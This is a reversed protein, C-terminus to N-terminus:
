ASGPGWPLGAGSAPTPGRDRAVPAVVHGAAEWRCSAHSRLKASISDECWCTISSSCRCWSRSSCLSCCSFSHSRASSVAAVAEPSSGPRARCLLAGRIELSLSRRVPDLLNKFLLSPDQHWVQRLPDPPSPLGWFPGRVRRSSFTRCHFSVEGDAPLAARPGQLRQFPRRSGCVRQAVGGRGPGHWARPSLWNRLPRRVPCAPRLGPSRPFTLM